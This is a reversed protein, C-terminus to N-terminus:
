PKKDLLRAIELDLAAFKGNVVDKFERLETRLDKIESRIDKIEGKLDHSLDRVDEKLSRIAHSTWYTNSGIAALGVIVAGSTSILTTLLTSDM